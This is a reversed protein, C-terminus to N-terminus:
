FFFFNYSYVFLSKRCIQRNKSLYQNIFLIIGGICLAPYGKIVSNIIQVIIKEVREFKRPHIPTIRVMQHTYKKLSGSLTVGFFSLM